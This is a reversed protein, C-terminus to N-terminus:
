VFKQEMDIYIRDVTERLAEVCAEMYAPRVAAPNM